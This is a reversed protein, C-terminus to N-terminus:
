CFSRGCGCTRAANPNAIAFGAGELGDHYDLTAGALLPASDPDVLLTLEGAGSPLVTIVDDEARETDFCLDYSFGSCGGARVGVRLALDRPADAPLDARARDRLALAHELASPTLTLSPSSNVPTTM